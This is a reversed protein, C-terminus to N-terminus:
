TVISFMTAVLILPIPFLKLQSLYVLDRCSFSSTAFFSTTISSMLDRSGIALFLVFFTVVLEKLDRGPCHAPGNLKPFDM